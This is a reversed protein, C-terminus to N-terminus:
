NRFKFIIKYVIFCLAVVYLWGKIFGLLDVVREIVGDLWFSSVRNDFVPASNLDSVLPVWYTAMHKDGEFYASHGGVIFRNLVGGGEICHFGAKGAMGVGVVFAKSLWLVYDRDACDNVVKIGFKALFVWSYTEPLVSGSLVMLV